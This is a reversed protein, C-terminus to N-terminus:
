GWRESFAWWPASTDPHPAMERPPREHQPAPSAAPANQAVKLREVEALAGDREAERRGFLATQGQIREQPPALWEDRIADLQFRAAPLIAATHGSITLELEDAGTDDPVQGTLYGVYMALSKPARSPMESVLSKGAQIWRRLIRPPISPARGAQEVSLYEDPAHPPIM